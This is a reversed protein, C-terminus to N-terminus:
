RRSSGSRLGRAPRRAPRSRRVQAAVAHRHDELFRHGRQVRGEGDALLDDLGAAGGREARRLGPFAGDLHQPLHADRRGLLAEVFVRVLQGAAHALAHHDGHRQGALRLQQDGVFRGGRQVDGDLGLDQLQHARQLSSVPVATM